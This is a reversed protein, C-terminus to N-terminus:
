GLEEYEIGNIMVWRDSDVIDLEPIFSEIVTDGQENIRTRESCLNENWLSKIKRYKKGNIEIIEDPM